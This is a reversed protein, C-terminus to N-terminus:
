SLINLLIEDWQSEDTQSSLSQNIILWDDIGMGECYKRYLNYISYYAYKINRPPEWDMDQLACIPERYSGAIANNPTNKIVAKLAKKPLDKEINHDMLVVSDQYFLDRGQRTFKDWVALSYTCAKIHAKKKATVGLTTFKTQLDNM